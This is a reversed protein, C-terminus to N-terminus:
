PVGVWLPCEVTRERERWLAVDEGFSTGVSSAPGLAPLATELLRSPDGRGLACDGGLQSRAGRLPESINELMHHLSLGRPLTRTLHCPAQHFVTSGCSNFSRAQYKSSSRSLLALIKLM